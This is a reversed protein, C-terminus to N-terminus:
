LLVGKSFSVVSRETARPWRPRPKEAARIAPWVSRVDLHNTDCVPKHTLHDKRGKDPPVHILERNGSLFPWRDANGLAPPTRSLQTGRTGGSRPLAPALWSGHGITRTTRRRVIQSSDLRHAILLGRKASHRQWLCPQIFMNGRKGRHSIDCNEGVWTKLCQAVHRLLLSM